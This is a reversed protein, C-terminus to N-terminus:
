AKLIFLGSGSGPPNGALLWQKYARQLSTREPLSEVDSCDQQGFIRWLDQGQPDPRSDYIDFDEMFQLIRSHAPLFRRHEPFLLWSHCIFPTEGGPFSAAFFAQARRYSAACDEPLLPGSSPIHLNIVQQVGQPRVRGAQEYGEPFPRLEFQLRGLTFRTLNFFGSFWQSVFSGWIGRVEHCEFLKWRLDELSARCLEKPLGREEYYRYLQPSLCIFLLMSASEAPIDGGECAAALGTMLEGYDLQPSQAYDALARDFYDRLAATRQIGEYATLLAQGAEAPYDYEGCFRAIVERM